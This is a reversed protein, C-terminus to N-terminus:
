LEEAEERWGLDLLFVARNNLGDAQHKVAEPQERPYEQGVAASYVARIADAVTADSNPTDQDLHGNDEDAM